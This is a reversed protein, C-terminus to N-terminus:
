DNDFRDFIPFIGFVTNLVDAMPSFINGLFDVIRAGSSRGVLIIDRDRLAPNTENNVDASLDVSINRKEVTGDPNLRILEVRGARNNEFGGAALLAQNLTSNPRLELIGPTKVEGVVYANILSPSFNAAAVQIAENPDFEVATPIFVTDGDRLAIDQTVNGTQLLDWLSVSIIQDEEPRSIRRIQIDRVNATQTIGGAAQIAQVLTSWQNNGGGRDVNDIREIIREIPDLTYAGPRNVEGVISIRIARPRVLRITILPNNIFPSYAQELRASAQSLTLGQLSVEGIWPFVVTGDILITHAGQDGSFEPVDFIDVQIQDQPGLVYADEFQLNAPPEPAVPLLRPPIPLRQEDIQQQSRPDEELDRDHPQQADQEAPRRPIFTPDDNHRTGHNSAVPAELSVNPQLAIAETPTDVTADPIVWDALELESPDQGNWADKITELSELNTGLTTSLAIAQQPVFTRDFARDEPNAASPTAYTSLIFAVCVGSLSRLPRVTATSRAFSDMAIHSIM